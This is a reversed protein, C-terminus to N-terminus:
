ACVQIETQDLIDASFVLIPITNVPYQQLEYHGMNETNTYDSLILDLFLAKNDTRFSM